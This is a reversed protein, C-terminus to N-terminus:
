HFLTLLFINFSGDLLVSWYNFDENVTKSVKEWTKKLRFVGSNTFASCIQLVGNSYFFSILADATLTMQADM